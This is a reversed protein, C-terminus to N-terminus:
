FHQVHEEIKSFLEEDYILNGSPKYSQIPTYQKKNGYSSSTSIKKNENNEKFQSSNEENEDENNENQKEQREGFENITIGTKNKFEARVYAPVWHMWSIFLTNPHIYRVNFGNEKLQCIIYAICAGQDYKPKAVGVIIEPVVFWCFYDNLNNKQRSILRIRIHIRKLIKKYLALQSLDAQRKKEYLEDINIKESFDDINELAFINNAM